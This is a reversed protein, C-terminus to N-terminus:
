ENDNKLEIPEMRYLTMGRMKQWYTLRFDYHKRNSGLEFRHVFRKVLDKSNIKASRSNGSARLKVFPVGMAPDFTVFPNDPSFDFAAHIEKGDLGFEDALTYSLTVGQAKGNCAVRMVNGLRSTRQKDPKYWNFFRDKKNLVM